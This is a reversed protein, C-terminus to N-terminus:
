KAEMSLLSYYAAVMALEERTERHRIVSDRAKRRERSKTKRKRKAQQRARKASM